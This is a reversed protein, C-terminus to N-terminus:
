PLTEVCVRERQCQTEWKELLTSGKGTIVVRELGALLNCLWRAFGDTSHPTEEANHELDRSVREEHRKCCIELKSHVTTVSFLSMLTQHLLNRCKRSWMTHCLEDASSSSSSSVSLIHGNSFLFNKQYIPSDAVRSGKFRLSIVDGDWMIINPQTMAM